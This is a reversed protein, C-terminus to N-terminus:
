AVGLEKMREVAAWHLFGMLVAALALEWHVWRWTRLGWSRVWAARWWGSVFLGGMLVISVAGSAWGATEGMALLGVTHALGTALAAISTWTHIGVRHRRLTQGFPRLMWRGAFAWGLLITGAAVFLSTFGNFGGFFEKVESEGGDGGDPQMEGAFASGGVAVLLVTLAVVVRPTSSPTGHAAERTGSM